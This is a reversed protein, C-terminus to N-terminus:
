PTGSAPAAGGDVPRVDMKLSARGAFTLTVPEGDCARYVTSLKDTRVLGKADREKIEAVVAVRQCAAIPDAHVQFLMTIGWRGTQTAFTNPSDAAVQLRSRVVTEGAPSLLEGGVDYSTPGAIPPVLGLLLAVACMM